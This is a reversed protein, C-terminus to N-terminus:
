SPIVARKGQKADLSRKALLKSKAFLADHSVAIPAPLRTGQKSIKFFNKNANGSM